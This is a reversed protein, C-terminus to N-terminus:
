SPVTESMAPLPDIKIIKRYKIRATLFRHKGDPTTRLHWPVKGLPSDAACTPSTAACTSKKGKPKDPPVLGHYYTLHRSLSRASKKKTKGEVNLCAGAMNRGESKTVKRPLEEVKPCCIRCFAYAKHDWLHARDWPVRGVVVFSCPLYM